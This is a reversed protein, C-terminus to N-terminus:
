GKTQINPTSCDNKLYRNCEIMTIIYYMYIYNFVITCWLLANKMM